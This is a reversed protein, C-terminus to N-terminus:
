QFVCVCTIKSSTNVQTLRKVAHFMKIILQILLHTFVPVQKMLFATTSFCNISTTERAAFHLPLYVCSKKKRYSIVTMVLGYKQDSHSVHSLKKETV